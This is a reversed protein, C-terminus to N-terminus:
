LSEIYEKVLSLKGVLLTTQFNRMETRVESPVPWYLDLLIDIFKVFSKEITIDM